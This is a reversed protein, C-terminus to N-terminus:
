SPEARVRLQSRALAQMVSAHVFSNETLFEYNLDINDENDTFYEGEATPMRHGIGEEFIVNRSRIIQGTELVLVRYIKCGEMGVLPGKQGSEWNEEM